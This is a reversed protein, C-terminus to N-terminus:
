QTPLKGLVEPNQPDTIRVFSSGHTMGMIAYYQDFEVDHWVWMDNGGVGARFNFSDQLKSTCTVPAFGPLM